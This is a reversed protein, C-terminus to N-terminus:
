NVQSSCQRPLVMGLATGLLCLVAAPANSGTSSRGWHRLEAGHRLGGVGWLRKGSGRTGNPEPNPCLLRTAGYKKKHTRGAARVGRGAGSSGQEFSCSERQRM